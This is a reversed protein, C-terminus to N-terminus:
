VAVMMEMIHIPIAMMIPTWFLGSTSASTRRVAMELKIIATM